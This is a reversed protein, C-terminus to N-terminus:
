SKNAHRQKMYLIHKACALLVKIGSEEIYQTPMTNIAQTLAITHADLAHFQLKEYHKEIADITM